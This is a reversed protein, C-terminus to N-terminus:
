FSFEIQKKHEKYDVSSLQILNKEFRELIESKNLSVSMHNFIRNKAHTLFLYKKTRTTAVYFLREEEEIEEKTKKKFFEFPLIGEECAPVFVCEFELGKASHITMLNVAEEKIELEEINKTLHCPISHKQLTKLIEEFIHSTRCLIAFDSFSKINETKNAQTLSRVGGIM